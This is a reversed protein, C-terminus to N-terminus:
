LKSYIFNKFDVKDNNWNMHIVKLIMDMLDNFKYPKVVYMNAGLNHSTEIDTNNLSTSYMIVPIQKIAAESRIEELLKFGSKLPMNIDLFVIAQSLNNNKISELLREGNLHLHLDIAAKQETTIQEVADNFFMFDDQDDDAYFIATSNM